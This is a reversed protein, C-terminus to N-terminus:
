KKLEYTNQIHRAGLKKFFRISRENDPNINAYFNGPWLTMLSEIAKKAYGKGQFENFIFIGIERQNTLYTSGIYTDDLKILYWAQYPRSRVFKAHDSMTPLGKHSISQDKTREKLLEYLVLISEEEQDVSILEVM